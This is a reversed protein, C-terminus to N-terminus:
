IIKEFDGNQLHFALFAVLGIIVDYMLYKWAGKNGHIAGYAFLLYLTAHVPRLGNWWIKDGFTEIGTKRKGSVFLYLFSFAIIFAIYGMTKLYIGTTHKVLYTIFLRTPICGFLFLLFRKQINNM